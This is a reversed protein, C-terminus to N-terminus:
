EKWVERNEIELEKEEMKEIILASTVRKQNLFLNRSLHHPSRKFYRGRLFPKVSTLDLGAGM